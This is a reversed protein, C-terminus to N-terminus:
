NMVSWLAPTNPPEWGIQTTHGQLCEYNIGEYSRIDDPVVEEGAIWEKIGSGEQIPLIEWLDKLSGVQGLDTWGDRDEVLNIAWASETARKSVRLTVGEEDRFFWRVYNDGVDVHLTTLRDILAQDGFRTVLASRAEGESSQQDSLWAQRAAERLTM